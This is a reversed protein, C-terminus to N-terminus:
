LTPTGPLQPPATTGFLGLAVANVIGWISVMLVFGIVAWLALQKGKQRSDDSGGGQIFYLYMGWIFALLAIAFVLPILITDILTQIDIFFQGVAGFVQAHGIFPMLLLAPLTYIHKHKIM